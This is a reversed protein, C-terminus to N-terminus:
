LVILIDDNATLERYLADIEERSRARVTITLRLYTGARSTQEGIRRADVDAYHARVIALATERFAPENRGLVKIPVECPFSLLSETPTSM